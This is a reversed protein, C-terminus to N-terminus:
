DLEKLFDAFEATLKSGSATLNWDRTVEEGTDVYRWRRRKVKLYVAQGRIPFDQVEQEAYFGKSEIKRGKTEIPVINKEELQIHLENNVKWIEGVEFYELIGEPLIYGILNTEM